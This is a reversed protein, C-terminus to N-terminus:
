RLREPLVLRRHYPLGKSVAFTVIQSRLSVFEEPTLQFMFDVPFRDRNRKVAENLRGVSVEYLVALDCDVIIKHARIVLISREILESSNSETKSAM